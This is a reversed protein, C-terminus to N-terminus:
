KTFSLVTETRMRLSLTEQSRRSPIPLYRSNAPLIREATHRHRLGARKAATANIRANSIGVGKLRSNGVVLIAKGGPKLARSIEALMAEIDIAYREVMGKERAPLRQLAGAGKLLDDVNHQAGHRSVESGISGARLPRLSSLTHGLWVLSLRHGRLYDIANLYPPSTVVADVSGDEVASMRRADGRRVKVEGLLKGTDLRDCLREVSQAFGAFVDYENDFFTRHPRSHSTDRAISAGREKTVITRSLAVRLADAYPGVQGALARALRRLQRRQRDEFWYSVFEATEPCGRIWDLEAASECRARELLQASRVKLKKTDIPTTWVRSMLVALPDLDFGVCDHGLESAARLVTGSGAMPDLVIAGSPLDALRSFVIEPAM